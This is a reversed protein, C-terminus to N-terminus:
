EPQPTMDGEEDDLSHGMESRLIAQSHEEVIRQEAAPNLVAEFEALANSMAAGTGKGGGRRYYIWGQEEAWSALLHLLLLVALVGGIWAIGAEQSWEIVSTPADDFVSGTVVRM